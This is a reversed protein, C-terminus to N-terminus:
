SIKKNAHGTVNNHKPKKKRVKNKKALLCTM